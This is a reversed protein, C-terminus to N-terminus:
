DLKERKIQEIEICEFLSQFNGAGFGDFNHREIIEIFLTPKSMVPKTFIQLLYGNEDFDLLIKLKKLIDMDTDIQRNSLKLRSELKDYYQEPIDLFEVGRRKLNKVSQIIDNTSLAIHQIGTGHNYELFEQIQSKRLGPAPENIPLKITESANTMVTSRLASYQTHIVTEDVSWFQKFQLIEEYWEVNTKMDDTNTVIHDIRKLEIPTLIENIPDLSDTYEIDGQIFTHTIDTVTQITAQISKNIYKPASISEAGRKIAQIYVYNCDNVKFAIDKVGDGHKLLFRTMEEPPYMSPSEIIFVIDNLKCVDRIINNNETHEVLNFGFRSIFYSSSQKSNSVWFTIQSFNIIEM